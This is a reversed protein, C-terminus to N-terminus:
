EEGPIIQEPDLNLGYGGGRRKRTHRIGDDDFYLGPALRSAIGAPIEATLRRKSRNPAQGVDLGRLMRSEFDVPRIRAAELTNEHQDLWEEFSHPLRPKCLLAILVHLM